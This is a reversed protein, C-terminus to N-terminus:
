AKKLHSEILQYNMLISHPFKYEAWFSKTNLSILIDKLHRCLFWIEVTDNYPFEHKGLIVGLIIIHKLILKSTNIIEAYQYQYKMNQYKM